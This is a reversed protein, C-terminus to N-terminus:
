SANAGSMELFMSRSVLDRTARKVYKWAKELGDLAISDAPPNVANSLFCEINHTFADMGTGATLHPPLGLTLEPDILALKPILYPSGIALKRGSDM